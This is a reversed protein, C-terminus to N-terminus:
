EKEKDYQHIEYVSYACVQFALWALCLAIAGVPTGWLFYLVWGDFALALSNFVLFLWWIHDKGVLWDFLRTVPNQSNAM